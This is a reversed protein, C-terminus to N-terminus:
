GSARISLRFRLRGLDPHDETSGGRLMVDADQRPKLDGTLRHLTGVKGNPAQVPRLGPITRRRDTGRPFHNGRPRESLDEEPNSNVDPGFPPECNGSSHATGFREVEFRHDDATVTTWALIPGQLASEVEGSKAMGARGDAPAASPM